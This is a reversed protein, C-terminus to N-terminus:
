WMLAATAVVAAAVVGILCNLATFIGGIVPAVVHQGAVKAVGVTTTGAVSGLHKVGSIFPEPNALFATIGAATALAGKNKWVFEAGRDGYRALVELVEAHRSSKGVAGEMLMAVRRGNQPTVAGMAKVASMGGREIVREAVGPHKCLAASAGEGYKLFQSMAAPRRLVCTAGAEGHLALVRVAKPVNVGAAEVLEFAQPGVRRVAQYAEPGHKAAM